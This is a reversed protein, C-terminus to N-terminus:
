SSRSRLGTDVLGFRAAVIGAKMLVAIKVDICPVLVVLQVHEIDVRGHKRFCEGVRNNTDDRSAKRTLVPVSLSGARVVEANRKCTM